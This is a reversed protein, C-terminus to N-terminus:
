KNWKLGDVKFRGYYGNNRPRFRGIGIFNGAAELHARFVDETIIEDLINFAVDGSWIDIRPMCKKVRKGDGRKGSAPLFLWEGPVDAAKINLILPEYVLIGAEIHKTYTAKGKGPVQVSMYKAAESLCNKFAMPPIIVRGDPTTHLRNNWTRAEYDAHSERGNDIKPVEYFRSQSYPSISSLSAIAIKM